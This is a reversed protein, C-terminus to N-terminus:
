PTTGEEGRLALDIERVIDEYNGVCVICGRESVAERDVIVDAYGTSYATVRLVLRPDIAFPRPCDPLYEVLRALRM